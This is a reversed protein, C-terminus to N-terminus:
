ETKNITYGHNKIVDICLAIFDDNLMDSKAMNAEKTLLQLNDLSNKGGKSTPIIHDFHYTKSKSIDIEKGTLACKPHEGFKDLVDQVTFNPSQYSKAMSGKKKHFHYIKRQIVYKTNSNLDKQTNQNYSRRGFFSSIKSSYPHRNCRHKAQRIDHKIKQDKGLHYCIISLSCNLNNKIQKYSLGDKRLKLINKTLETM